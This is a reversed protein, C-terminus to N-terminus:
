SHYLYTADQVPANVGFPIQESHRNGIKGFASICSHCRLGEQRLAHSAQLDASIVPIVQFRKDITIRAIVIWGIRWCRRYHAFALYRMGVGSTTHGYDIFGPVEQAEAILM